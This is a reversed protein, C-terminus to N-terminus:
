PRASELRDRTLASSAAIRTTHQLGTSTRGDSSRLDTHAIDGDDDIRLRGTTENELGDRIRRRVAAFGDHAHARDREITAFDPTRGHGGGAPARAPVERSDDLAGRGVAGARLNALTDDAEQEFARPRLAHRHRRVREGPQRLLDAERLGRR